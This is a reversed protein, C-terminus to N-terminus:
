EQFKNWEETAEAAIKDIHHALDSINILLPQKQSNGLRFTAMPLAKIKAQKKATEYNLGFYRDCIDELRIVKEHNFRTLLISLTSHEDTSFSNM